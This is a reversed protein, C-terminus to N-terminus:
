KKLRFVKIVGNAPVTVTHESATDMVSQPTSIWPAGAISTAEELSYGTVNIPWSLIANSGSFKIKLLPAGPMQAVSIGTWFGGELTFKGGALKGADPQGVTDKVTFQGGISTGGGCDITSSILEFQGGSQAHLMATMAMLGTFAILFLNTKM